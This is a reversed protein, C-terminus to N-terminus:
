RVVSEQKCAHLLVLLSETDLAEFPRRERAQDDREDGAVAVVLAHDVITVVAAPKVKARPAM